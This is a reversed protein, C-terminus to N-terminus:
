TPHCGVRGDAGCSGMCHTSLGRKCCCLVSCVLSLLASGMKFLRASLLWSASRAANQQVASIFAEVAAKRAYFPRAAAKMTKEDVADQGMVSGERMLEVMCTQGELTKFALQDYHKTLFEQWKREDVQAQAALAEGDAICEPGLSSASRTGFQFCLTSCLGFM